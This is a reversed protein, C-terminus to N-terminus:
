KVEGDSDSVPYVAAWDADDSPTSGLGEPDLWELALKRSAFPGVKQQLV